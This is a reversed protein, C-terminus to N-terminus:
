PLDLCARQYHPLLGDWGQVNRRRLDDATNEALLRFRAAAEGWIQKL